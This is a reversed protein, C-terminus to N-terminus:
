TAECCLGVSVRVDVRLDFLRQLFVHISEGVVHARKIGRELSSAGCRAGCKLAFAGLSTGKM